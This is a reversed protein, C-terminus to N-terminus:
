SFIHRIHPYSPQCCKAYDKEQFAKLGAEIDKKRKFQIQHEAFRKEREVLEEPPLAVARSWGQDWLADIQRYYPTLRLSQNGALGTSQVTDLLSTPGSTMLNRRESLFAQLREATLAGIETTLNTM